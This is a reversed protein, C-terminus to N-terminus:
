PFRLGMICLNRQSINLCMSHNLSLLATPQLSPIPSTHCHTTPTPPTSLFHYICSALPISHRTVPRATATHTPPSANKGGKFPYPLYYLFSSPPLSLSLSLADGSSGTLKPEAHPVTHKPERRPDLMAHHAPPLYSRGNDGESERGIQRGDVCSPCGGGSRCAALCGHKWRCTLL